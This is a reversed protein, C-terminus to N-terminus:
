RAVWQVGEPTALIADLDGDDDVDVFVVDSAPPLDGDPVLSGAQDGRLAPGGADSAIAADPPCGQDWGAIALAHAIIPTDGLFVHTQDQLLGDGRNIYLRVGAAVSAVALDPDFDGDADVMEFRAVDLPVPPIAADNPQFGSGDGLWAQMPAATQGVVLDPAGNADVDAVALAKASTLKTGAVLAPQDPGFSGAGDNRWLLLSTASATILDVAGDADVDAATIATVPGGGLATGGDFTTGTRRFITPPAADTAIILDDDCDGDVDAAIAAVLAGDPRPSSATAVLAGSNGDLVQVDTTATAIAVVLEGGAGQSAVLRADAPGAPAGVVAPAGSAGKPCSALELDIDNGFDVFRGARLVPVGGRDARVWAYAADAGGPEVRLSQPLQKGGLAYVRGFQGGGAATDAVGLCIADIGTPIPRDGTVEILIADSCGTAVLCLATISSRLVCRRM